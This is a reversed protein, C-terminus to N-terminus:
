PAKGDQPLRQRLAILLPPLARVLRAVPRAVTEADGGSRIASCVEAAMEFIRQAGINGASGKLAHALHEVDTLRGEALARELKPGADSQTAVFTGLIRLYTPWKGRVISVGRTSDLGDIGSLTVKWDTTATDVAPQPRSQGLWKFVVGHLTEPEVPKAVFDNMGAAFCAAQDEDFANATMAIIPTRALAPQQRIRRTAELGDMVPMQMDMLILDYRNAAVRDLAEQGNSARDIVLGLDALMEIAVEQNLLNDEVLLVRAGRVNGSGIEPAAPLSGVPLSVGPRRYLRATLWFTSGHGPESEVGVEGGMLAALHRTLSLGLGTGGYKRTTSADAQEFSRFLRAVQDPPIGIGTDSVEFRVLLSEDDEGITRARLTVGGYETFKVANSLYNLLAQRLRTVDGRLVPPLGVIDSQFSLRRAVLRDHILSHAQNFLVEPAFDVAELQLKGAEIKSLDLIDNILALLHSGAQRIRTLRDEQEQNLPSRELLRAQGLIANMPTRIEHSMNALFASKARNAAEARETVEALQATRQAVLDELHHRYHELQADLRRMETIDFFTLLFSDGVPAGSVLMTRVDGNRCTIQREVPEVSRRVAAALRLSQEMVYQRYTPDPYARRLWDAVTPVEARTYGFTEIFCRNVDGVSDDAHLFGLPLPAMEFLQRFRAESERLASEERHRAIAIAALHTAIAVQEIALADPESPEDPYLAFTGLVSGERSFIPWSWCAVLGYSAALATYDAWLPDTAIDRVIVTAGRWAATGCSGVAEGIAVGDVARMYGEPLQRAAGHRLHVGDPDLLLISARVGALRTEVGWLLVDLTETLSAGSAVKELVRRQAEQSQEVNKRASIDTMAGLVEYSGDAAFPGRSLEDRLWVYGGKGHAFRYEHALAGDKLVREMALAATPQDDPHVHSWWWGSAVADVCAYGLIREINASVALTTESGDANVKLSYLITPSTDVLKRLQSETSRQLAQVADREARDRLARLGFLIDSGLEVLLRVEEEDFAGAGASAVYLVCAVQSDIRVPLACLAAGDPLGDARGASGPRTPQPRWVLPQAADLPAPFDDLWHAHPVGAAFIRQADPLGVAGPADLKVAALLYGGLQVMLGCVEDLLRAPDTARAVVQNCESIMHLAANTRLLRGEALKSDTIDSWIVALHRRAGRLRIGRGSVRVDRVSGDRRRHRTELVHGNPELMRALARSIEDPTLLCDIDGVELRAFEERTYGLNRYAADNFEVFRRTELDLLAIADVAQSVISSFIEERERLAEQAQRAGAIDRGVALVGVLRGQQDFMPTKIIELLERHGDDAFFVEQESRQACGAHIAALDSQRFSDALDWGVFDYDTHGIVDDEPAGWLREFRHNCALFVGDPDKLWVLDPLARILAPALWARGTAPPEPPVAKLADGVRAPDLLGVVRGAEDVVLARHSAAGEGLRAVVIRLSEGLTAYRHSTDMVEDVARGAPDGALMARLLEPGDLSGVPKDGDVVVLWAVSKEVMRRAAEALSCATQVIEVPLCM